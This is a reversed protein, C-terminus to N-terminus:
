RIGVLAANIILDNSITCKYGDGDNWVTDWPSGPAHSTKVLDWPYKRSLDDIGDDIFARVDPDDAISVSGQFDDIVSAGYNSYEDYVEPLVPGYPWAEFEDPFILSGGTARCYVSQLFYLIKQLQLNSIPNGESNCRDITYHALDMASCLYSM